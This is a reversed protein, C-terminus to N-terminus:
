RMVAKLRFSWNLALNNYIQMKKGAAHAVADFVLTTYCEKSQSFGKGIKLVIVAIGIVAQM